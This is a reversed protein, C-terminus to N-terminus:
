MEGESSRAIELDAFVRKEKIDNSAEGLASFSTVAKQQWRKIFTKEPENSTHVQKKSEGGERELDFAAVDPLPGWEAMQKIVKCAFQHLKWWRTGKMGRPAMISMFRNCVEYRAAADLGLEQYDILAQEVLKTDRDHKQKAERMATQYEQFYEGAQQKRIHFRPLPKVKHGKNKQNNTEAQTQQWTMRIFHDFGPVGSLAALYKVGKIHKAKQDELLNANMAEGRRGYRVYWEHNKSPITERFFCVFIQHLGAGKRSTWLDLLIIRCLKNESRIDQAWFPLYLSSLERRMPWMSTRLSSPLVPGGILSGIMRERRVSPSAVNFITNLWGSRAIGFKGHNLPLGDGGVLIPISVLGPISNQEMKERFRPSCKICCMSGAVVCTHCVTADYINQWTVASLFERFITRLEVSHVKEARLPHGEQYNVAPISVPTLSCDRSCRQYTTLQPLSSQILYM